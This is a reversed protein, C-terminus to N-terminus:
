QELDRGVVHYSSQQECSSVNPKCALEMDANVNKWVMPPATPMATSPETSLEATLSLNAPETMAALLCCTNHCITITHVFCVGSAQRPHESHTSSRGANGEERRQEDLLNVQERALRM